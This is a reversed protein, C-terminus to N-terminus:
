IFHLAKHTNTIHWTKVNQACGVFHQKKIYVGFSKQPSTYRYSHTAHSMKGEGKNM